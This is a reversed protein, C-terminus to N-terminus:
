LHFLLDMKGGNYISSNSQCLHSRLLAFVDWVNHIDVHACCMEMVVHIDNIIQCFWEPSTEMLDEGDPYHKDELEDLTSLDVPILGEEGSYAEPNNFCTNASCGTPLMSKKDFRRKFSNYNNMWENLGEQLLPVWLYIFLLRQIPDQPDYKKEKEADFLQDILDSNYQKMLQSWLCKIKQNHVSKTFQHSQDPDLDEINGFQRMLNIQHGALEITESGRNTTTRRPIGGSQKVLQLYYYGIHRPNNNTTHVFVGLVKRSYADIFGYLTIDSKKLKNHGNASWIFNPGPVNFIRRKLVRKSRREVGEPDLEQNIAAATTLHINSGFKRQLLHRLKRYGVNKGEPTQRIQQVCMKVTEMNAPDGDKTVNNRRKLEMTQMRQELTRQCKTYTHWTTLVHYIQSNTLGDGFYKIILEELPVEQENTDQSLGWTNKQRTLTRETIKVHHVEELHLLIEGNTKGEQILELVIPKFKDGLVPLPM